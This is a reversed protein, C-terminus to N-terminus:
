NLARFLAYNQASMEYIDAGEPPRSIEETGDMYTIRFAGREESGTAYITAIQKGDRYLEQRWVGEETTPMVELVGNWLGPMKDRVENFRNDPVRVLGGPLDAHIMAPEDEHRKFGAELMSDVFGAPTLESTVVDLHSPSPMMTGFARFAVNAVMWNALGLRRTDPLVLMEEIVSRLGVVTDGDSMTSEKTVAYGCPALRGGGDESLPSVFVFRGRNDRDFGVMREHVREYFENPDEDIGLHQARLLAADRLDGLHKTTHEGGTSHSTFGEPTVDVAINM